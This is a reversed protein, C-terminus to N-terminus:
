YMEIVNKQLRSKMSRNYFESVKDVWIKKPNRNSEKLIKQFVAITVSKKIKRLFLGLMNVIFPSHLKRKNFKRIIPKRLEEALERNSINENKNGSGSVKNFFFNYVM